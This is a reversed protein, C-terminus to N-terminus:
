GALKRQSGHLIVVMIDFVPHTSDIFFETHIDFNAVCNILKARHPIIFNEHGKKIVVQIEVDGRLKLHVSHLRFLLRLM